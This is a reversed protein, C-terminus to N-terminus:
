HTSASASSQTAPPRRWRARGAGSLLLPSTRRGGTAEFDCHQLERPLDPHALMHLRGLRRVPRRRELIPCTEVFSTALHKLGNRRGKPSGGCPEDVELSATDRVELDPRSIVHYGGGILGLGPDATARLM